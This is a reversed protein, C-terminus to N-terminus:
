ILNLMKLSQSKAKLHSFLYITSMYKNCAGSLRPGHRSSIYTLILLRVSSGGPHGLPPTHVANATRVANAPRVANALRVISATTFKAVLCQTM